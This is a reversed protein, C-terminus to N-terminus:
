PEISEEMTGEGKADTTPTACLSGFIVLAAFVATSVGGNAGALWSMALALAPLM